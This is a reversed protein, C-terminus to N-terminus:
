LRGYEFGGGASLRTHWAEHSVGLATIRDHGSGGGATGHFLLNKFAPGFRGRLSVLGDDKYGFSGPIGIALDTINQSM